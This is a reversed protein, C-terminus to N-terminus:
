ALREILGMAVQPNKQKFGSIAYVFVDRGRALERTPRLTALDAPANGRSWERARGAWADLAQAPYGLRETESAGMLRVYIFPASLDAIQPYQSDVAVVIAVNRARALDVFEAAKFSEHRVEVAHNIARGDVEGPLLDLFTSFDQADFAKTPAFQWNIPGLKERLNMVGGAFFREVSEKGDALVRRNTAFRPAKVAFVFDDPTEERWKSFSEPKQAGYFTSNIEISTLKRSAYELERKQSLGKPYFSERWPEFNWGGIGVRIKGAM